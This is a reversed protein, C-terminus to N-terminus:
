MLLFITNSNQGGPIRIPGKATPNKGASWQAALLDNIEEGGGGGGGGGAARQNCDICYVHYEGSMGRNKAQRIKELLRGSEKLQGEGIFAWYLVLIIGYVGRERLREGTFKPFPANILFLYFIRPLM